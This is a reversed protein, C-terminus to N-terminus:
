KLYGYVVRAIGGLDYEISIKEFDKEMLKAVDQAQTHGVEFALLGGKRLCTSINETIARYFELGDDGGDLAILPEYNSVDECLTKIDETPIYPPNSVVADAMIEKFPTKVDHKKFNIELGNLLANKKAISLADESIDLAIVRSNPIYKALSVAIAGSGTCMDIIVPSPSTIKEIAKEVLVETDPRPILVGSDVCFDLSMFEKKGLIYGTPEKKARRKILEFFKELDENLVLDDKHVTLYLKDCSLIHCMFLRADIGASEIKNEKLYAIGNKIADAITCNVM